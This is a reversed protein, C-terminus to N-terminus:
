REGSVYFGISLLAAAFGAIMHRLSHFGLVYTQELTKLTWYLVFISYLQVGWRLINSLLKPDGSDGMSKPNKPKSRLFPPVGSLWILYILQLLHFCYFHTHGSISKSTGCNKSETAIGVPRVIFLYVFVRWSYAILADVIWFICIKGVECFRNAGYDILSCIALFVFTTHFIFIFVGQSHKDDVHQAKREPSSRAHPKALCDDLLQLSSFYSVLTLTVGFATFYKALSLAARLRVNNKDNSISHNLFFSSSTSSVVPAPASRSADMPAPPTTNEQM